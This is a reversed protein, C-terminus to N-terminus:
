PSYCIYFFRCAVKRLEDPNATSFFSKSNCAFANIIIIKFFILLRSDQIVIVVKRNSNWASDLWPLKGSNPAHMLCRRAFIYPAKKGKSRVINYFIVLM